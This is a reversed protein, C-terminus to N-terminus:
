RNTRSTVVAAGDGGRPLVARLLQEAPMHLVEAAEMALVSVLGSPEGDLAAASLLLLRDGASVRHRGGAPAAPLLWVGSASVWLAPPAAVTDVSVTGDSRLRTTAFSASARDPVPPDDGVHVDLDAGRPVVQTFSRGHHAAVLTWPGPRDVVRTPGPTGAGARHLTATM